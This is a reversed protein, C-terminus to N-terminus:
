VYIEYNNVHRGHATHPVVGVLSVRAISHVRVIAHAVVMSVVIALIRCM